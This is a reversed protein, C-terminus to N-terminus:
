LTDALTPTTAKCWETAKSLLTPSAFISNNHRGEYHHTYLWGTEYFPYPPLRKLYRRLDRPHELETEVLWDFGDQTEQSIQIEPERKVWKYLATAEALLTPTAHINRGQVSGGYGQLNIGSTSVRMALRLYEWLTQPSDFDTKVLWIYGDDTPQCIDIAQETPIPPNEICKRAYWYRMHIADRLVSNRNGYGMARLERLQRATHESLRFPVVTLKTM